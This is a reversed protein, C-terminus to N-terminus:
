KNKIKVYLSKYMNKLRQKSKKTTKNFRDMNNSLTREQLTIVINRHGNITEECIDTHEGSEKYLHQFLYCIWKNNYLKYWDDTIRSGLITFYKHYDMGHKSIAEDKNASKIYDICEDSVCTTRDRKIRKKSTGLEDFPATRLHESYERVYYGKDTKPINYDFGNIEANTNIVVGEHTMKLTNLGNDDYVNFVSSIFSHLVPFDAVDYYM